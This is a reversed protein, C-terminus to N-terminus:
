CADGTASYVKRWRGNQKRYISYGYADFGGQIAFVEGVGDGDLDLQDVFKIASDFGEPPLKYSQYEMLAAKYGAGQPEAIMFLDRRFKNSATIVFSGVLEFKGDGDLDTATLNTTTLRSLMSPPTGKSSYFQKVMKMVSAREAASPARRASPKSGLTESNTALAMVGERIRASTKIAVTAHINNCGKEWKRVTATGADGGGFTLRYKRGAGFYENAFHIQEADKDEAYPQELKGRDVIVVADMSMEPESEGSIVCVLIKVKQPASNAAVQAFTCLRSAALSGLVACLLALALLSRRRLIRAGHNTTTSFRNQM